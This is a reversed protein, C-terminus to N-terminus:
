TGLLARMTDIESTQSKEIDGALDVAAQYRGETQETIAMEIAGTHHEIMMTLWLDQFDADSADELATLDDATMMGPLDTDMGEMSEALNGSGHGANAHDRMTAPVDEDWDTLWGSMVQIEPGQVERIREVLREVKPELPRDITLDVMSLAQAHHQIMDTAFAVDAENHRTSSVEAASGSGPEDGGCATLALALALGIALAGLARPHRPHSLHLM